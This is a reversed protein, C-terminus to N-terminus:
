AAGKCLFSRLREPIGDPRRTECEWIVATRWGDAELAALAEKDRAVNREFKAEWFATNSKPTYALRCGSHRHWYCGHVFIARRRGLFVLDPSGPLDKRHLRYRLGLAHAAQRVVMEPQTNRARIRSMHASREASTLIDM